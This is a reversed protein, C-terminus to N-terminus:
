QHFIERALTIRRVFKIFFFDNTEGCLPGCIAISLKRKAMILPFFLWGVVARSVCETYSRSYITEAVLIIVRGVPQHRSSMFTQTSLFTYMSNTMQLRKKKSPRHRSCRDEKYNSKRYGLVEGKRM